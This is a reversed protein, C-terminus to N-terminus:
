GLAAHHLIAMFVLLANVSEENRQHVHVASEVAQFMWSPDNDMHYRVVLLPVKILGYAQNDDSAVVKVMIGVDCADVFARLAHNM